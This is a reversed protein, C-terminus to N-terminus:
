KCATATRRDVLCGVADVPDHEVALTDIAALANRVLSGTFVSSVLRLFIRRGVFTTSAVFSCWDFIDGVAGDDADVSM